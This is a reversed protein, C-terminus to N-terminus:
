PVAPPLTFLFTKLKPKNLHMQRQKQDKATNQPIHTNNLEHAATEMNGSLWRREITQWSEVFLVHIHQYSMFVKYSWGQNNIRKRESFGRVNKTCTCWAWFSAFETGYFHFTPSVPNKAPWRHNDSRTPASESRPTNRASPSTSWCMRRPAWQWPLGSTSARQSSTWSPRSAPPPWAVRRSWSTPWPTAKTCCGCSQPSPPKTEPGLTLSEM